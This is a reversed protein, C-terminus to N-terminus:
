EGTAEASCDAVACTASTRQLEGRVAGEGAVEAAPPLLVLYM